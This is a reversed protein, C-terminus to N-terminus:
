QGIIKKIENDADKVADEATKEGVFALQTQLQLVNSIESYYPSKPRPNANM